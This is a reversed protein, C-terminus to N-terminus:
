QKDMRFTITQMQQDRVGLGDWEKGWYPLQIKLKSLLRWVTKQLSWRVNGNVYLLIGKEECWRWCKNNTSKSHHGNQGTNPPVEYNQNANEQYNTINLMKEQAQWGNTHRRQLFIQEPIRGM